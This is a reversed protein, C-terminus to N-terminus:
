PHRKEGTSLEHRIQEVADEFFGHVAAQAVRHGVVADVAEGVPGFPPRYHGEIELQTEAASVPWASLEAEM